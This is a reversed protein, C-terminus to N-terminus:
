GGVMAPRLILKEADPDFERLVENRKGTTDDVRYATFGKRRLEDFTRRANAVEDENDPNWIIKTDGERDLVHMQSM